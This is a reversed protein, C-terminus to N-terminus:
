GNIELEHKFRELTELKKTERSAKGKEKMEEKTLKEFKSIATTEFNNLSYDIKIDDIKSEFKEAITRCKGIFDDYEYTHKM